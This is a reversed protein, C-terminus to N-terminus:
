AENPEDSAEDTFTLGELTAWRADVPAQCDCPVENKDGGGHLCLGQCDERCLPALPLELLIVDHVMPELDIFDNVIPYAEDDKEQIEDIYRERIQVETRGLVEVSCRRCVGFWDVAVTGRAHLGGVFSQLKLDVHVLADSRVDTEAAGRPQFEHEADWPADFSLDMTSPVDRLLLAVPIRYLSQV